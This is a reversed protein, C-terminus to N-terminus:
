MSVLVEVNLGSRAARKFPARKIRPTEHKKTEGLLEKIRPRVTNGTLFLANEIEERTAGYNGRSRVFDFVRWRINDANNDIAVAAARSTESGKVYPAAPEIRSYEGANVTTFLETQTM